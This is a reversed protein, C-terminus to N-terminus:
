DKVCRIPMGLNQNGNQHAHNKTKLDINFYCSFNDYFHSNSWWYCSTYTDKFSGDEKMLGTPIATFGTSNQNLSDMEINKWHSSNNETLKFVIKENKLEKALVKWESDKPIHWGLPCIGRKDNVVQWSYYFGKKKYTLSDFNYATFFSNASPKLNEKEAIFNIKEGTNFHTKRLNEAMWIQNGIKITRYIENEQDIVFGYNHDKPYIITSDLSPNISLVVSFKNKIKDKPNLKCIIQKKNGSKLNKLDGTIEVPFVINGKKNRIIVKVDSHLTVNQSIDFTITLENDILTRATPVLLHQGILNSGSVFFFFVFLYRM